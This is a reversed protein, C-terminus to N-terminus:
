VTSSIKSRTKVRLFFPEEDPVCSPITGYNSSTIGCAKHIMRSVLNNFGEILGSTLGHKVFGCVRSSQKLFGRALKQFPALGSDQAMACWNALARQAWGQRRYTFLARFQEKLVYATALSENVELLQDLKERGRCDLKDQNSLILFRHGKLYSREQKSARRWQSRRVEDVAQNVNM